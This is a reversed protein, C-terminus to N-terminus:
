QSCGQCRGSGKCELCDNTTAKSDHANSVCWGNGSCMTCDNQAM